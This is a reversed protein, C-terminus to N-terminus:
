VWYVHLWWWKFVYKWLTHTEWMLLSEKRREDFCQRVMSTRGQEQIVLEYFACLHWGSFYSVHIRVLSNVCFLTLCGWLLWFLWFYWWARKWKWCDRVSKQWCDGLCLVLMSSDVVLVLNPFHIALYFFIVSVLSLSSIFKLLLSFNNAEFQSDFQLPWDHSGLLTNSLDHM